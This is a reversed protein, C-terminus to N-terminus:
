KTIKIIMEDASATMSFQKYLHQKSLFRNYYFVDLM